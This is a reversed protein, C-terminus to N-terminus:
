HHALVEVAVVACAVLGIAALLVVRWCWSLATGRIALAGTGVLTLVLVIVVGWLAQTRTFLGVGGLGLLVAPAVFTVLAGFSARLAHAFEGRDMMVDHVVLHALLDAVLIASAMGVVTVGLSWVADATTVDGHVLMSISVALMAFTLYIAEKISEAQQISTARGM